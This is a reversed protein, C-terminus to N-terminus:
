LVLSVRELTLPEMVRLSLLWGFRKVIREVELMKRPVSLQFSSLRFTLKPSGTLSVSGKTSNSLMKGVDIVVHWEEETM